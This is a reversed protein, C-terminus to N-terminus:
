SMGRSGKFLVLDGSSLRKELEETVLSVAQDDINESIFCPIKGNEADLKKAADAMEKGFFVIFDASSNEALKVVKEHESESEWGLELMSGLVFFKKNEWKISNFFDISAGMSDPNANYCDQVLTYKGEVIQNRGFVPKVSELGAKIEKASLGLDKALAIVSLSNKLNYKGCLPLNIKEGDLVFSTGKLGLDQIDSVDDFGFRKIQGKSECLYDVFDDDAPVYGCSSSTFYKFIERKEMAINKRSELIGIHATGINTIIAYNPKLVSAIETMEGKRNMGMEFIGVQHEKRINFCSLPLGTESNWNGQTCVVNYKQSIVKVAIERTTTKGSSGTIGVKILDPFKSVYLAALKQLAYMTHSVAIVTIGLKKLEFIKDGHFQAFFETVFIISAGNALAADIFNHGDQRGVLPSFIYGKKVLRSDIAVGTFDLTDGKAGCLVKGEIAKLVEDLSLSIIDEQM